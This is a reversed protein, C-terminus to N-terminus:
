SRSACWPAGCRPCPCAPAATSRSGASSTAAARRQRRRVARRVVDRGPALAEVMVASGRRAPRSGAAADDDRDAAACHLRARWLAEDAYINGIGSVLTQDLLARKVGTRAAACRPPSRRTTSSRTWRTAPSTRSRCRCGPATPTPSPCGASPASTSSACSAPATPSPSASGCTSATRRGRAPAAAAPREHRPPRPGGGRLRGGAAPDLALWLYKGRRHSAPSAHARAAARRLRGARRRSAAVARPHRVEVDAVTRGTVWRDLGRRVVEVEPLEPM